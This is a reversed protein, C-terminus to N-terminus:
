LCILQVQGLGFAQVASEACDVCRLRVGTGGEDNTTPGFVVRFEAPADCRWSSAPAPEDTEAAIVVVGEPGVELMADCLLDHDSVHDM